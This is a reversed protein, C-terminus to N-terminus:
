SKNLLIIKMEKPLKESAYRLILRPLREKNNMLYNFISDPEYKSCTKLLWGIGKRIYDDPYKLMREVLEFVYNENFEKNIMIIKLLIVMSARRVWLNESISWKNITKEALQLNNRKGLFPGIVRICSSDCFAWTDCYKSFAEEFLDITNQNFKSKFHNLFFIAAFKEEQVNSKVLNKFVDLSDEYSLQYKNYIARIIKEIESIKHGYSIFNANNSNLIKNRRTIQESTLEPATKKLYVVIEQIIKRIM